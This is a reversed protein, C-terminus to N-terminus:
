VALLDLQSLGNRTGCCTEVRRGDPLKYDLPADHGDEWEGHCSSCCESTDLTTGRGFERWIDDCRLTM